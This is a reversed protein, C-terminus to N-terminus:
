RSLFMKKTQSGAATRMKVFYLGPPLDSGNFVVNHSGTGQRESVLEEVERGMLDYVRIGVHTPESLTYSIETTTSFPNPVNEGLAFNMVQEAGVPVEDSFVTSGDTNVKRLRYYAVTKESWADTAHYVRHTQGDLGAEFTAFSAYKGEETRKEIQFLRIKNEDYSEWTMDVVSGELTVTFSLLEVKLPATSAVLKPKNYAVAEFGEAGTANPIRGNQGKEFTYLAALNREFGSLATNRYFSVEEQTRAVSWFRLEDISGAFFRRRTARAGLLPPAHPIGVIGEPLFMTEIFRADVYLEISRTAAAYVLACHHWRGDSMFVSSRTRYLSDGDCAQVYAAGRDNIGFELPFTGLFDDRRTSLVPVDRVITSLWCEVSFDHRMTFAFV